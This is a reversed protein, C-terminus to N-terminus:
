KWVKDADMEWEEFYIAYSSDRAKLEEGIEEAQERTYVVAKVEKLEIEMGWWITKVLYVIWVRDRM